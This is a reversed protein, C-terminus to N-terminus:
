TPEVRVYDDLREGDACPVYWEAPDLQAERGHPVQIMRTSSYDVGIVTGPPVVPNGLSRGGRCGGDFDGPGRWGACSDGTHRGHPCRDLDAVIRKWRYLRMNEATLRRIQEELSPPVYPEFDDDDTM